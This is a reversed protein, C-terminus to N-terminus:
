LGCVKGDDYQNKPNMSSEKSGGLIYVNILNTTTGENGKTFEFICKDGNHLNNETWFAFWGKSIIIRGDKRFYVKVPWTKGNPICLIMKPKIDLGHDIVVQKPIHQM